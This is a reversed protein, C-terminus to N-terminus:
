LSAAAYQNAAACAADVLNAMKSQPTVREITPNDYREMLFYNEEGGSVYGERRYSTMVDRRSCDVGVRAAYHNWISGDADRVIVSYDFRIVEGESAVSQPAIFSQLERTVGGQTTTWRGVLQQQQAVAPTAVLGLFLIVSGFIKM